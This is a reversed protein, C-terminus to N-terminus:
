YKGVTPGSTLGRGDVITRHRHTRVKPRSALHNRKAKWNKYEEATKNGKSSNCSRCCPVCNDYANHGGRSLPLVHDITGGKNECYDCPLKRIEMVQAVTLTSNVSRRAARRRQSAAVRIAKGKETKSYYRSYERQSVRYEPNTHIRLRYWERVEPKTNYRHNVIKKNARAQPTQSYAKKAAKAEPTSRQKEVRARIEPDQMRRATRERNTKKVEPKQNYKKRAKARRKKNCPRCVLTNRHTGEISTPCDECQRM